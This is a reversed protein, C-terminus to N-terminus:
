HQLLRPATLPCSTPPISPLFQERRPCHPASVPKGLPATAAGDMGPHQKYVFVVQYTDRRDRYTGPPFFSHRSLPLHNTNSRLQPTGAKYPNNKKNKTKKGKRPSHLPLSTCYLRSRKTKVGPSYFSPFFAHSHAFLEQSSQPSSNLLQSEPQLSTKHRKPQGDCNRVSPSFFFGVRTEHEKEFPKHVPHHKPFLKHKSPRGFCTDGFFGAARTYITHPAGSIVTWLYLRTLPKYYSCTVTPKEKGLHETKARSLQVKLSM